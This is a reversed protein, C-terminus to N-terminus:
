RDSTSMKYFVSYSVVEDPNKVPELWSLTVFRPKIIQAQVDRPSGPLPVSENMDDIHYKRTIPLIPANSFHSIEQSDHSSTLSHLLKKLDVDPSYPHISGGSEDEEEDDYDDPDDNEDLQHDNIKDLYDNNPQYLDVKTNKNSSLLSDLAWKSIQKPNQSDEQNRQKSNPFKQQKLMPKVDNKPSKDYQQM